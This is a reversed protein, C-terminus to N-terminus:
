DERTVVFTKGREDLQYEKIFKKKGDEEEILATSYDSFMMLYLQKNPYKMQLLQLDEM